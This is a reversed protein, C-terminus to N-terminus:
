RGPRGEGTGQDSSALVHPGKTSLAHVKPSRAGLLARRPHDNRFVMTFDPSGNVMDELNRNQEREQQATAPNSMRLAEYLQPRTLDVWARLATGYAAAVAVAGRYAMWTAVYPVLSWLLWAGHPWMVLVTAVTAVAACACVRVALDLDNRRDQVYATHESKAVMGIHTAFVLVPLNSSAGALLEHRRLVNGLSTPMVDLPTTPYRGVVRKATEHAVAATLLERRANDDDGRLVDTVDDDDLVELATGLVGVRRSAANRRRLHASTRWVRLAQSTAGGGWYGELLQVLPFQLPHTVLALALVALFAAASAAISPHALHATVNAVAPVGDVAGTAWLSWLWGALLLSPVMSVLGFYRGISRGTGLTADSTLSPM